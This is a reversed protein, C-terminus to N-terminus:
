TALPVLTCGEDDDVVEYYVPDGTAGDLLPEALLVGFGLGGTVGYVPTWAVIVGDVAAAVDLHEEGSVTAEHWLPVPEIARDLTGDLYARWTDPPTATVSPGTGPCVGADEVRRGLLAGHRGHRWVRLPDFGDAPEGADLVTALADGSSVDVMADDAAGGFPEPSPTGVPKATTTRPPGELSIGDVDWGPEVGVLDAVTPAIDVALVNDDVVEAERQGPAKVFLPAWAIDVANGPELTRLAQDRGFSIGHDATLVVVADDWRDLEEMRDIITGLLRDAWQLQLLHRVRAMAAFDTGLEDDGWGGFISGEVPHPGDYSAGSPLLSWPQHPVPAHLYDFRPRAGDTAGLGTVFELGPRALDGADVAGAVAYDADPPVAIPWVQGWWLDFAEGTLQPVAAAREPIPGDLLAAATDDVPVASRDCLTPPCLDTVWEVAHVDHTPGLLTFLSDPYEGHVAPRQDGPAPFRGTVITPLSVATRSAGVTHNRYWTSSDALRALNPFLDRDVGGRGDMISTTPLEDLVIMLVPPRDSAAEGGDGVDTSAPRVLPAVPSALLFAAVLLLPTPSAFRLFSRAPAWRRHAFAVLAAVAVAALLRPITGAGLHRVLATAAAGALGAVLLSQVIGRVRTGLPRSAAAVAALVVIPVVSVLLAFAVIDGPSAGVSVFTEPSEGYPGLVPQVVAFGVLGGLELASLLEDRM